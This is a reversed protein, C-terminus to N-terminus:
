RIPQASAQGFRTIRPRASIKSPSGQFRKEKGRTWASPHGDFDMPKTLSDRPMAIVLYCNDWFPRPAWHPLFGFNLVQFRSLRMARSWEVKKKTM